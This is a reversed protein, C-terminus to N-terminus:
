YITGTDGISSLDKCLRAFEASPMRVIADYEAEPIGLHESDIDMLKMEFDSIKDQAEIYLNLCSWAKYTFFLFEWRVSLLIFTSCIFVWGDFFIIEICILYGAISLLYISCGFPKRIGEILM